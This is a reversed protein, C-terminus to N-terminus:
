FFTTEECPPHLCSCLLVFISEIWDTLTCRGRDATVLFQLCRLLLLWNQKLWIWWRCVSTHAHQRCPALHQHHFLFGLSWDKKHPYIYLHRCCWLVPFKILDKTISNYSLASPSLARSPPRFGTRDPLASFHSIGQHVAMWSSVYVLLNPPTPPLCKFHYTEKVWELWEICSICGANTMKLKFLVAGGLAEISILWEKFKCKLAVHLGIVIEIKWRREIAAVVM